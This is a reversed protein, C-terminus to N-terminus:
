SIHKAAPKKIYYYTTKESASDYTFMGNKGHKIFYGILAMDGACFLLHTSAITLAFLGTNGTADFIILILAALSVVVLPALAVVFFEKKSLVQQDAQVYFLFKKLQVGFKIDRKGLVWFALAHILEHIVILLTFSFMLALGVVWLSEKAQLNGKATLVIFYGLLTSISILALIQVLSYIRIVAHKQSVIGVIFSKLDNFAVEDLLQYHLNNRLTEPTIHEKNIELGANALL